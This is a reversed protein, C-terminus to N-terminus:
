FLVVTDSGLRFILPTLTQWGVYLLGVGLVLRFAKTGKLTYLGGAILFLGLIINM